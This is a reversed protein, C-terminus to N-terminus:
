LVLYDIMKIINRSKYIEQDIGEFNYVSNVM